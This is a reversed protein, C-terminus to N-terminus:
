GDSKEAKRRRQELKKLMDAFSDCTEFAILEAKEWDGQLMCSLIGRLKGGILQHMLQIADKDNAEYAQDLADDVLKLRREGDYEVFFRDMMGPAGGRLMSLAMRLVTFVSDLSVDYDDDRELPEFYDSLGSMPESERM